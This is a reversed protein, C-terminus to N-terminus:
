PTKQPIKASIDVQDIQYIFEAMEGRTLFYDPADDVEKTLGLNKGAKQYKEYWPEDGTSVYQLVDKEYTELIIKLAETSTVKNIGGYTGDKYGNVIKDRQAICVYPSFWDDKPVDSFTLDNELDCAEIEEEPYKASIIIKAFEYRSIQHTPRFTGDGFGQVYGKEKIYNISDSFKTSSSVDPFNIYSTCKPPSSPKDTSCGEATCEMIKGNEVGCSDCGSFWTQCNRPIEVKQPEEIKCGGEYLFEAGENEMVCKNAYTKPEPMVQACMMGEPCEPMPPQACVPMYERTCPKVTRENPCPDFECNNESNRSVFSGDSCEKAEETCFIQEKFYERCEPKQEDACVMLTCGMEGNEESRSCTNCGDFWVKCNKPVSAQESFYERCEPSKQEVCAMETCAMIEGAEERTCTNCGDFWIKCMDPIEPTEFEKCYSEERNECHAVTCFINLGNKVVCDNCGNFWTTCNEPIKVAPSASNETCEGERLFIAGRKELECMNSFTHEVTHSFVQVEGCVPIYETACNIEDEASSIGPLFFIGLLFSLFLKKM